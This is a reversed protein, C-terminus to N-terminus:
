MMVKEKEKEKGRVVRRVQGSGETCIAAGDMTSKKAARPEVPLGGEM